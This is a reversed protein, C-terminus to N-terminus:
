RAASLSRADSELEQLRKAARERQAPTATAHLTAFQACGHRLQAQTYDDYGPTPSRSVRQLYARVLAEARAPNAQAQRVTDILDRQRRQREAQTRQPDFPSAQLERRMLDRQEPSLRGYLWEARDIAQDLRRQLRERPSGDLFDEAFEDNSKAQRGQLHEIQPAKLDLALRTLSPVAQEGLRQLHEVIADAERCLEDHTPTSRVMGEWARLREAIRPLEERRHWAFFTNLDDRVWSSQTGSFDVQRDLWWHLLNPAQQYAMRTTTCATLAALVATVALTRAIIRGWRAGAATGAEGNACSTM